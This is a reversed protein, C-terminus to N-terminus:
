LRIGGRMPTGAMNKPHPRANRSFHKQSSKNPMSRRKM